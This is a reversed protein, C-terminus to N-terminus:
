EPSHSVDAGEVCESIGAPHAIGHTNRQTVIGLHGRCHPTTGCTNTVTCHWRSDGLPDQPRQRASVLDPGQSLVEPGATSPGNGTSPTHPLFLPWLKGWFICVFM